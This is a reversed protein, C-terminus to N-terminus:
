FAGVAALIGTDTKETNAATAQTAQAVTALSSNMNLLLQAMATLQEIMKNVAPLMDASHDGGDGIDTGGSSPMSKLALAKKGGKEYDAYDYGKGGGIKKNADEFAKKTAEVNEPLNRIEKTAAAYIKQDDPTIHWGEMWRGSANKQQYADLRALGYKAAISGPAPRKQYGLEDPVGFLKNAQPSDIDIALGTQHNSRGPAAAGTTNKGKSKDVLYNTFLRQQTAVDRFASNINLKEGFTEYYEKAALAFNRKFEPKLGDLKVNSGKLNVYDKLNVEGIGFFNGIRRFIGAKSGVDTSGSGDSLGETDGTPQENNGGNENGLDQGIKDPDPPEKVQSDKPCGVMDAIVDGIWDTVGLSRLPTVIWEAIDKGTLAKALLEICIYIGAAVGGSLVSVTSMIFMIICDVLVEFGTVVLMRIKQRKSQGDETNSNYRIVGDIAAFLAGAKPIRKGYEIFKKGATKLFKALYGAFKKVLQIPKLKSLAAKIGSAANMVKNKIFGFGSKIWGGAKSAGKGIKEYLADRGKALKDGVWGAGKKLLEKGQEIKYQVAFKAANLGKSAAGKTLFDAGKLAVKAAGKVVSKVARGAFSVIPLGGLLAGGGPILSLIGMGASLIDKLMGGNNDGVQAAVMQARTSSLAGQTASDLTQEGNISALLPESGAKSKRLLASASGRFRSMFQKLARGGKALGTVLGGVAHGNAAVNEQIPISAGAWIDRVSGDSNISHNGQQWESEAKNVHQQYSEGINAKVARDLKWNRFKGNGKYYLYNGKDDKAYMLQERVKAFNEPSYMAEYTLANEHKMADLAKYDQISGIISQRQKNVSALKEAYMAKKKPDTEKDYLAKFEEAKNALKQEAARLHGTKEQFEESKLAEAQGENPNRNKMFLAHAIKGVGMNIGALLYDGTTAKPDAKVMDFLMAPPVVKGMEGGYFSTFFGKIATPGGMVLSKGLGIAGKIGRWAWGGVKKAAAGVKSGAASLFRGFATDKIKNWLKSMWGGVKKAGKGFAKLIPSRRIDFFNKIYHTLGKWKGDPKKSGFFFWRAAKVPATNKGGVALGLASGVLVGLPNGGTVLGGILGGAGVYKGMKLTNKKFAQWVKKPDRNGTLPDSMESPTVGYLFTNMPGAVALNFAGGVAQLLGGSYGKLSGDPNTFKKGLLVRGIIGDNTFSKGTWGGMLAGAIAGTPGFTAGLLGGAGAGIVTGKNHHYINKMFSLPDKMFELRNKKFRKGAEPGGLMAVASDAVRSLVGEKEMNGDKDKKGFLFQRFKENQKIEGIAGGAFAGLLPGGPLFFSAALGIGAGKTIGPLDKQLGGKIEGLNIDHGKINVTEGLMLKQMPKWINEEAQVLLEEKLSAENSDTIAGRLQTINFGKSNIRARLARGKAATDTTANYKGKSARKLSETLTYKNSGNKNVMSMLEVLAGLQEDSLGNLSVNGGEAYGLRMAELRGILNRGKSSNVVEQPVVYEGKHVLGAVEYKGGNGTFGGAAYAGNSKEIKDLKENYAAKVNQIVGTGSDIASLFENRGRAAENATAAEKVPKAAWKALKGQLEPDDNFFPTLRAFIKSKVAIPAAEGLVKAVEWAADGRNATGQVGHALIDLARKVGRVNLDDDTLDSNYELASVFASFLKDEFPSSERINKIQRKAKRYEALAKQREAAPMQMIGGSAINKQVLSKMKANAASNYASIRSDRRKTREVDTGISSIDFVQGYGSLQQLLVDGALTGQTEVTLFDRFYDIQSFHTFTGIGSREQKKKKHFDMLKSTLEATNIGSERLKKENDKIWKKAFELKSTDRYDIAEISDTDGIGYFDMDGSGAMRARSNIMNSHQVRERDFTFTYINQKEKPLKKIVTQIERALWNGNKSNVLDNLSKGNTANIIETAIKYKWEEREENNKFRRKSGEVINEALQIAMPMDAIARLNQTQLKSVTSWKGNEWDYAKNSKSLSKLAKEDLKGQKALISRIDSLLEPIVHVISRRTIGDFPVPGKEYKNAGPNLNATTKVGFFRFLKSIPGNGRVNAMQNLLIQGIGETMDTLKKITSMFPIKMLAAGMGMKLMGGPTLMGKAMRMMELNFTDEFKEHLGKIYLRMNFESDGDGFLKEIQSVSLSTDRAAMGKALNETNAKISGLLELSTAYYRNNAEEIRSLREDIEKGFAYSVMTGREIASTTKASGAMAAGAIFQSGADFSGSDEKFINVNTIGKSPSAGEDDGFDDLSFEDGKDKSKKSSKEDELDGFLDDDGFEFESTDIGMASMMAKEEADRDYLKGTKLSKKLSGFIGKIDNFDKKYGAIIEKIGTNEGGTPDKVFSAINKLGPMEDGITDPVAQKFSRVVNRLYSKRM